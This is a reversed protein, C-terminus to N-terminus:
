ALANLKNITEEEMKATAKQYIAITTRYDSHGLTHSSIHKDIGCAKAGEQLYKSVNM